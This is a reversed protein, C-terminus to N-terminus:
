SRPDTPFGADSKRVRGRVPAPPFAERAVPRRREPPLCPDRVLRFHASAFAALTRVWCTRVSERCRGLLHRAQRVNWRIGNM